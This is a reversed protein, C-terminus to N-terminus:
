NRKTASSGKHSPALLEVPSTKPDGGVRVSFGQKRTVYPNGTVRGSSLTGFIKWKTSLPRREGPSLGISYRYNKPQRRKSPTAWQLLQERHVPPNELGRRQFETSFPRSPASLYHLEVAAGLERADFDCPM